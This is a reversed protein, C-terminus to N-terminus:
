EVWAWILLKDFLRFEAGYCDNDTRDNRYYEVYYGLGTYRVRNESESCDVTVFPETFAESFGLRVCDATVFATYLVILAAIVTLLKKM